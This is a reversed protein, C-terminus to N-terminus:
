PSDARGLRQELKLRLDAHMRFFQRGEDRHQERSSPQSRDDVISRLTEDLLALQNDGVRARLADISRCGEVAVHRTAIVPGTDIGEDVWFVSCGARDGNLTAWEAVNMGRYFPLIGMHAGLTGLRPVALANRRLIGAGANVAILPRVQEIAAVAAAANVTSV